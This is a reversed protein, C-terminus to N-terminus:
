RLREERYLRITNRITDIVTMLVMGGTAVVAGVDCLFYEQEFINVTPNEFM